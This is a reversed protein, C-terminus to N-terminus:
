EKIMVEHCKVYSGVCWEPVIEVQSKMKARETGGWGWSEYFLLREVSIKLARVETM